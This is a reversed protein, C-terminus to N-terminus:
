RRSLRFSPQEGDKDLRSFQTKKYYKNEEITQRLSLGIDGNWISNDLIRKTYMNISVLSVEILYRSHMKISRIRYFAYFSYDFHNPLKLKLKEFCEIYLLM